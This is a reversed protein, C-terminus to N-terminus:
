SCRPCRPTSAGRCRGTGSRGTWAWRGRSRLRDPFGDAADDVSNLGQWTLAPLVVLPRAEGRASRPPLGAAALPWVARERRSRVRVVYVGTRMKSPIHIRFRGAVRSGHLLPKPAGLRSVAFKFDRDVPGVEFHAVAGAAVASLPGRLTFNSVTVGTGPRSATATPTPLPAETVNGARDRVAVTFAYDGEPAPRTSEEGASVRGDWTATRNPRGRFRRVVHPPGDDSRFVRIVPARNEPGRYTLKVSPTEGPLDTANVSPTASALSAKPPVTDVDIEKVSDIVRSEDRRVVRMRYTGDPVLRGADARGDWMWRHKADGALRRDSVIRRVETGESNVVIFSVSAPESLDFGIRTADRYRDGNPSFHAPKTAFRIVLPFDSKLQQALVFAGLTAAVMVAFVARILPRTM